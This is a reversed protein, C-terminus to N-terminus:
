EEKKNADFGCFACTGTCITLSYNEQGCQFCRVMCINNHDDTYGFGKGEQLDM